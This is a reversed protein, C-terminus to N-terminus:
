SNAKFGLYELYSIVLSILRTKGSGAEGNIIRSEELERMFVKNYYDKDITQEIHELIYRQQGKLMKHILTRLIKTKEKSENCLRMKDTQFNDIEAINDMMTEKGHMGEVSEVNHLKLLADSLNETEVWKYVLTDTNGNEKLSKLVNNLTIDDILGSLDAQRSTAAESIIDYIRKGRANKDHETGRRTTQLRTDKMTNLADNFKNIYEEAEGSSIGIDNKFAFILNYAEM